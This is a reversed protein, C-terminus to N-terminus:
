NQFYQVVSVKFGLLPPRSCSTAFKLLQKKQTETFKQLIKWFLIITPHDATFEGLFFFFDVSLLISHLLYILAIVEM